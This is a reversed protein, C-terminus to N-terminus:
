FALLGGRQPIGGGGRAGAQGSREAQKGGERKRVFGELVKLAAVVGVQRRDDVEREASDVLSYEGAGPELGMQGLQFQLPATGDALVGARAGRAGRVHAAIRQGSRVVPVLPPLHM